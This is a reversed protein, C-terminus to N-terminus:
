RIGCTLRPTSVSLCFGSFDSVKEELKTIRPMLDKLEQSAFICEHVDLLLRSSNINKTFLRGWELTDLGSRPHHSPQTSFAISMMADDPMPVSVEQLRLLPPRGLRSLLEPTGKTLLHARM